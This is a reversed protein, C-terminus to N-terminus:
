HEIIGRDKIIVGPGSDPTKLTKDKKDVAPSKANESPEKKLEIKDNNVKEDGTKNEGPTGDHRTIKKVEPESLSDPRYAGEFPRDGTDLVPSSKKISSDNEIIGRDYDPELRDTSPFKIKEAQHEKQEILLKSRATLGFSAEDKELRMDLEFSDNTTENLPPTKIRASERGMTFGTIIGAVILIIILIMYVQKILNATKGDISGIIRNVTQIIMNIIRTLPNM